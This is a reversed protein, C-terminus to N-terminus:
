AEDEVFSINRSRIKNEMCSVRGKFCKFRDQAVRGTVTEMDNIEKAVQREGM